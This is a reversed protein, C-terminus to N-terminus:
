FPEFGTLLLEFVDLLRIPVAEPPIKHRLTPFQGLDHPLDLPYLLTLAGDFLLDPLLFAPLFPFELLHLPVSRPSLAACALEDIGQLPVVLLEAPAPLLLAFTLCHQGELGNESKSEYNSHIPHM